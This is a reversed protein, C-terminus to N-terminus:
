RYVSMSGHNHYPTSVITAIASMLITVVNKTEMIGHALLICTGCKDMKIMPQKMCRMCVVMGWM